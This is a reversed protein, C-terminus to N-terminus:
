VSRLHRGREPATNPAALLAEDVDFRTGHLLSNFRRAALAIEAHWKDIDDTTAGPGAILLWGEFQDCLSTLEARATLVETEDVPPASRM